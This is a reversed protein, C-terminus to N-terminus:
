ERERRQGETVQGASVEIMTDISAFYKTWWDMSEEDDEEEEGTTPHKEPGSSEVPIYTGHEMSILTEKSKHWPSSATTTSPSMLSSETILYDLNSMERAKSALAQANRRNIQERTDQTVPHYLYKHISPSTHSGVLTFRGFSRFLVSIFNLDIEFREM